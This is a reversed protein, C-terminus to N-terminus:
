LDLGGSLLFPLRGHWGRGVQWTRSTAAAFRPGLLARLDLSVPQASLRAVPAGHEIVIGLRIRGDVVPRLAGAQHTGLLSDVLVGGDVRSVLDSLDGVSHEEEVLLRGSTLVPVVPRTPRRVVAGGRFGHGTSAGGAAAATRRSHYLAVPTGEEILDLRATPVGEDDFPVSGGPHDVLGIAPHLLPEGLRGSLFSRGGQYEMASLSAVLPTLLAQLAPPALIVECDEGHVEAEPLDQWGAAWRLWWAWDESLVPQRTWDAATLQLTEDKRGVAVLNQQWLTQRYGGLGSPGGLCVEVDHHQVTGHVDVDTDRQMREIEARVARMGDLPDPADATGPDASAVPGTDVGDHRPAAPGFRALAYADAVLRAPDDRSTDAATGVRGDVVVRLCSHDQQISRVGEIRGAGLQAATETHSVALLQWDPTVAEAEAAVAAM